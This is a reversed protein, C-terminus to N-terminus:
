TIGFKHASKHNTKLSIM